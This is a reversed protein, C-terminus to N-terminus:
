VETQEAMELADTIAANIMTPAPKDRSSAPGFFPSTQWPSHGHERPSGAGVSVKGPRNIVPRAM